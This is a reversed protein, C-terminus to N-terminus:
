ICELTILNLYIRELKIENDNMYIHIYIGIHYVSNHFILLLFMYLNFAVWSYHM